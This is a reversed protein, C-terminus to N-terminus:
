HHVNSTILHNIRNKSLLKLDKKYWLVSMSLFRYVNLVHILNLYELYEGTTRYLLYNIAHVPYIFIIEWFFWIKMPRQRRSIHNETPFLNEYIGLLWAIFAYQVMTKWENKNLLLVTDSVLVWNITVSDVSMYSTGILAIFFFSGHLYYWNFHTM